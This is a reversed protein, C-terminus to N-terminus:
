SSPYFVGGYGTQEKLVFRNTNSGGSPIWFEFSGGNFRLSCGSVAGISDGSTLTINNDFTKAGTITQASDLTVFNSTSPIQDM